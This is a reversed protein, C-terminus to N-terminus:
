EWGNPSPWRPKIVTALPNLWFPKTFIHTLQMLEARRYLVHPSDLTFSVMHINLQGTILCRRPRMTICSSVTCTSAKEWEAQWLWHSTTNKVPQSTHPLTWTPYSSNLPHNLPDYGESSGNLQAKPMLDNVEHCSLCLFAPQSWCATFPNTITKRSLTLRTQHLCLVFSSFFQAPM